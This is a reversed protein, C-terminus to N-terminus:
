RFSLRWIAMFRSDGEEGMGASIYWRDTIALTATSFSDSSYPDSEAVSFDVKDLLGLLPRLRKGFRFRGRRIEEALLQMARSSAEQPNELGSTTTGTALLTMIENEPLPPNSTLVLQPNSARGYAYITVQYPRPEATGRIELIPDFGGAPTFTITGSAIKLTSFPLTARFEQIKVTGNPLPNALTGGVHISGNVEGTALNGRILFPDQTRATVNLTWSGFPAPIPLVKSKPPDIKPLSAVSPTNFPVGIPLIEIDRFFVSDVVDVNGSLAASEFTGQVRLNINTRLIVSDNRLVPLHDGRINFDLAGPKGANIALNGSGNLTGGAIRTKLSKLTIKDLALGISATINEIEPILGGKLRLGGSILDIQGKVAPKAITGAMEVNGTVTGKLAKANPVLTTFRSLDLRPLDLHANIPEDMILAPNEAWAAPRLPFDAKMVAAPFDPATATANIQLKGESGKITVKLDAPPLEPQTPSRLDKAEISADLLPDAYTGAVHVRVRATSRPDLQGAAPLWPKLLGLSLVQTDISIDVPRADHALMDKWKSFDKPIPLSATGSAIEQDGDKWVFNRLEVLGNVLGAELAVTQNQSQIRLGKADVRTPWDYTIAGVATILPANERSWSAESLTLDGQHKGAKVDGRGTWKGTIDGVGGANVKAIALWRDIRSNTFEDLDASAQYVGDDLQYKAAAKLGDIAVEAHIPQTPQWQAKIAIASALKPDEPTLSLTADASQLQNRAMGITFDSTIASPPVPADPDIATSHKALQALLGSVRAIKLDGDINGLLFQGETRTVPANAKLSIETDLAKVHTTLSVNEASLIADLQTESARWDQWTTNDLRISVNGIALKPDPMIDDVEVALASLTTNAHIEFGFLKATKAADLTGTTLNIKASDFGPTTIISFNADNVQLATAVSPKGGAPLLLKFDRVSIGPYPDLHAISLDDPNWIITSKQEPWQKGTPDTIAGLELQIERDGPHHVLNSKALSFAPKGDRTASLSVNKLSISVPIVRARFSRITEVLKALDLPPSETKKNQLGLRLNAHLGNISIGDVEGKIIKRLQYVADIKDVSLSVLGKDGSLELDTISIGGTLSGHLKFNGQFGAKELFHSAIKPALWRIGPGNMWLIGLLIVILVLWRKLKRRRKPRPAAELTATEDEPLRSCKPVGICPTLRLKKLRQWFAM